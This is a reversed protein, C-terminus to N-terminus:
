PLNYKGEQIRIIVVQVNKTSYLTKCMNRTFTYPESIYTCVSNALAESFNYICVSILFLIYM